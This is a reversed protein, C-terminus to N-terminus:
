PLGYWQRKAIWKDVYMFIFAIKCTFFERVRRNLKCTNIHIHAKMKNVNMQGYLHGGGNRIGTHNQPGAVRAGGGALGRFDRPSWGSMYICTHKKLIGICTKHKCTHMHARLPYAHTLMHIHHWRSRFSDDPNHVYKPTHIHGILWIPYLFCLFVLKRRAKITKITVIDVAKWARWSLTLLQLLKNVM